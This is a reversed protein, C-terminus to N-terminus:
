RGGIGRMARFGEVVRDLRRNALFAEHKGLAEAFVRADM